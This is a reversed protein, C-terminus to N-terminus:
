SPKSAGKKFAEREEDSTEPHKPRPRKLSYDLQQLLRWGQKDDLSGPARGLAQELWRTVKPGTWLGGGVEAPAEGGALSERLATQQSESLRSWLRPRGLLDQRKDRVADPGRENYAGVIKSVTSPMCAVVAAVRRGSHGEGVLWLAHWRTRETLQECERYRRRVEAQSLHPALVLQKGM